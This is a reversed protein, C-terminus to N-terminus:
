SISFTFVQRRDNEILTLEEVINFFHQDNVITIVGKVIAKMAYYAYKGGVLVGFTEDQEIVQPIIDEPLTIIKEFDGDNSDSLFAIENIGGLIYFYAKLEIFGDIKKLIADEISLLM